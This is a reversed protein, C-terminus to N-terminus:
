GRLREVEAQAKALAREADEVAQAAEEASVAVKRARQRAAEAEASAKELQKEADARAREAEKSQRAITRLGEEAREAEKRADRLAREAAQVAATAEKLRARQVESDTSITVPARPPKQQQRFTLVRSPGTPEDDDAVRPVLSALAEFGPPDVDDVLWGARPTDPLSSSVSLAELTSTIRRMVDPNANLGADRLITAALKSLAALSERREELPGRLDATDGKIQSAQARRFREGVAILTDFAARHHWFLQNVAWAPVSPKVLGKVRAAEETKGAKKLRTVLANRAPTFETLPIQYLGDLDRPGGARPGKEAHGRGGQGRVGQGRVGSM